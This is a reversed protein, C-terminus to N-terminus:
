LKKDEILINSEKQYLCSRNVHSDDAKLFFFDYHKEQIQQKELAKLKFYDVLTAYKQPPM